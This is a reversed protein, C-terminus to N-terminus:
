YGTHELNKPACVANVVIDLSEEGESISTNSPNNIICCNNLDYRENTNIDLIMFDVRNRNSSHADKIVKLLEAPVDRIVMSLSVPSMTNVRYTLGDSGGQPSVTMANETPDEISIDTVFDFEYSVEETFLGALASPVTTMTLSANEITIKSM